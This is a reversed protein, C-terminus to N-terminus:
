ARLGQPDADIPGEVAFARLDELVSYYGEHNCTVEGRENTGEWVDVRRAKTSLFRFDTLFTQLRTWEGAMQLHFPLACLARASDTGWAVPHLEAWYSNALLVHYRTEQQRDSLYRDAVARWFARTNFSMAGARDILFGTIEGRLDRIQKDGFGANAAIGMLRHPELGYPSCAILSLVVRPVEVGFSRELGNLFVNLAGALDGPFGEILATLTDHAGYTRLSRILLELYDASNAEPKAVIL